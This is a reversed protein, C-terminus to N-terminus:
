LGTEPRLDRGEATGAAKQTEDEDNYTEKLRCGTVAEWLQDAAEPTREQAYRNLAAETNLWLKSHALSAKRASEFEARARDHQFYIQKKEASADEKSIRGDRYRAYLHRLSQYACQEYIRLGSPMLEGRMAAREFPLTEM